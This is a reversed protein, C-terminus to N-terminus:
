EVWTAKLVRLWNGHAIKEKEAEGYGRRSLEAWLNPIKSADELGEPTDAGDYDSGLGVHDIGMRKVLYDVHDAAVGLPVGVGTKGDARLFSPEFNVGVIGHSDRVADLQWDLLNRTCRCLAHANSHSAVLPKTSLAAVDRFGKENMHALDVLIGLRNCAKVLYKGAQTLGDGTDPSHPFGFPVGHGFANPRSWVIGISRLGRDYYSRLNSLDERICEAGEVHTVITLAGEAFSKELEARTRVVRVKGDGKAALSGLFELARDTFAVAHDPAVAERPLSLFGEATSQSNFTMDRQATGAPPDTFIAFLGGQYGGVRAKPLDLRAKENGSFFTDGSPDLEIFKTLTDNHGDFVPLVPPM